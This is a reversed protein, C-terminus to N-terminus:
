LLILLDVVFMNQPGKRDNTMLPSTNNGVKPLATGFSDPFRLANGKRVLICSTRDKSCM